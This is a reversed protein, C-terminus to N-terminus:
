SQVYKVGQEQTETALKSCTFASRSQSIKGQLNEILTVQSYFKIKSFYESHRSFYVSQLLFAKSFFFFCVISCTTSKISYSTLFSDSINNRMKLIKKFIKRVFKFRTSDAWYIFISFLMKWDIVIFKRMHRFRLLLYLFIPLLM